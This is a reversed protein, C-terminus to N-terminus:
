QAAARALGRVHSTQQDALEDRLRAYAARSRAIQDSASALLPERLRDADDWARTIAARLRPALNDGDLRVIECGVGFQEQVGSMKDVYYSSQALAVAPIGQALAFVAGHYSGTVVVRCESVRDIVKQPTDLSAGGDADATDALLERLTDVDMGGGHHAIPVPVVRAGLTRGAEGLVNRLVTLCEPGVSAYPAIRVNIGIKRPAAVSADDSRAKPFALEIADDGTVVVNASSVGLSTLLPVSARRERVAILQVSPLVEAAHRRLDPNDIPGIGQGFMATPINRRAALGLTSLIGHANEPFADTLIGAGNVVVLDAQRIADLFAAADTEDRGRRRAKLRLSL